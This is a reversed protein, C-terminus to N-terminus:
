NCCPFCCTQKKICPFCCTKEKWTASSVLNPNNGIDVYSEIAYKFDNKDSLCRKIEDFNVVKLGRSEIADYIHPLLFWSLELKIESLLKKKKSYEEVIAASLLVISHKNIKRDGIIAKFRYTLILKLEELELSYFLDESPLDM